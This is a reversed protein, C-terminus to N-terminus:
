DAPAPPPPEAKTELRPLAVGHTDFVHCEAPPLVLRVPAGEAASPRDVRVLVRGGVAEREVHVIAHDGVDEIMAIYFVFLGFEEFM